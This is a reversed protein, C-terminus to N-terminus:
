FRVKLGTGESGGDDSTLLLTPIIVAAAVGLGIGGWYLWSVTQVDSLEQQSMPTRPVILAAPDLGNYLQHVMRDALEEINPSPKFRERRVLRGRRLDYLSAVYAGPLAVLLIAQDSSALAKFESLEPPFGDELIVKPM